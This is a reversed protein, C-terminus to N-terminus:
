PDNIRCDCDVESVKMWNNIKFVLKNGMSKDLICPYVTRISSIEVYTPVVRRDFEVAARDLLPMTAAAKSM